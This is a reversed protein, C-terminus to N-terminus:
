KVYVTRDARGKRGLGDTYFYSIIYRGAKNQPIMGDIKYNEGEILNMGTDYVEVGTNLDAVNGLSITIDDVGKFVPKKNIFPNQPNADTPDWTQVECEPSIKITKPKGLEDEGDKSVFRIQTGETCNDYIWKADNVSLRIDGDTYPTGLKNYEETILAAPSKKSYASSTFSIKDKGNLSFNTRYRYYIDKEKSNWGNEDGVKDDIHYFAIEDPNDSEYTDYLSYDKATSCAMARVPLRYNGQNNYTYATICGTELNIHLSYLNMMKNTMNQDLALKNRTSIIATSTKVAEENAEKVNVVCSVSAKEVRATITAKGVSLADIRGNSDVTAVEPNDSSWKLAYNYDIKVKVGINGYEGVRMTKTSGSISLGIAEAEDTSSIEDPLPINVACGFLQFIMFIVLFIASIRLKKM